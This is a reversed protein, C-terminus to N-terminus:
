EVKVRRLREEFFKVKGDDLLLSSFKFKKTRQFYFEGDVHALILLDTEVDLVMDSILLKDDGRLIHFLPSYIIFEEEKAYYSGFRIAQPIELYTEIKDSIKNDSNLKFQVSCEHDGHYVTLQDGKLISPHFAVLKRVSSRPLLTISDPLYFGKFYNYLDQLTQNREPYEEFLSLQHLEILEQATYAKQLDMKNNAIQFNNSVKVRYPSRNNLIVEFVLLHQQRVLFPNGKFAIENKYNKFNKIFVDDSKFSLDVLAKAENESIKESIILKALAKALPDVNEDEKEKPQYENVSLVSILKGNLGPTYLDRDFDVSDTQIPNLLMSLDDTQEISELELLNSYELIKFQLFLSDLNDTQAQAWVFSFLSLLLARTKM